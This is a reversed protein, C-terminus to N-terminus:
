QSNLQFRLYSVAGALFGTAGILELSEEVLGDMLRFAIRPHAEVPWYEILNGDSAYMSLEILWQGAVNYLPQDILAEFASGLFSLSAGCAYGLFGVIMFFYIGRVDNLAERFFLFATIPFAALVLFYSLEFLTGVVGYHNESLAWEIIHRIRHRTDGTDEILMLCLGIGLVFWFFFRKRDKTNIPGANMISCVVAAGLTYYQLLEIPGGEAYWNWYFGRNVADGIGFINKLDIFFFLLFSFIVFGVGSLLITSPTIYNALRNKQM